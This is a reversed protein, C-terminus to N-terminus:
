NETRYLPSVTQRDMPEGKHCKSVKDAVEPKTAGLEHFLPLCPQELPGCAGRGRQLGPAVPERGVGVGLPCTNFHTIDANNQERQSHSKSCNWTM